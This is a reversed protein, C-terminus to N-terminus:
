VRTAYVSVPSWYFDYWTDSFMDYYAGGYTAEVAVYPPHDVADGVPVAATTYQYAGDGDTVKRDKLVYTGQNKNWTSVSIVANPIPLEDVGNTQKGDTLRGWVKQGTVKVSWYATLTPTTWWTEGVLPSTILEFAPREALLGLWPACTGQMRVVGGPAAPASGVSHRLEPSTLYYTTGEPLGRGRFAFTFQQTNVILKGVVNGEYTVDFLYVNKLDTVASQRNTLPVKVEQKATVVGVGLTGIMLACLVIAILTMRNM